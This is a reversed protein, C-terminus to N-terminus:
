SRVEQRALSVCGQSSRRKTIEEVGAVQSYKSLQKFSWIALKPTCKRDSLMTLLKKSRYSIIIVIIIINVSALRCIGVLWFGVMTPNQCYHYHHPNVSVLKPPVIFLLQAHEVMFTTVSTLIPYCTQAYNHSHSDKKTRFLFLASLSWSPPGAPWDPLLDLWTGLDSSCSKYQQDANHMGFLCNMVMSWCPAHLAISNLGDWMDQAVLLGECRM